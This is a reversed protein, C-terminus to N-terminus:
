RDNFTMCAQHFISRACACLHLFLLVHECVSTLNLLFSCARVLARIDTELARFAIMTDNESGSCTTPCARLSLFGYM